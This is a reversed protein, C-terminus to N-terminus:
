LIIVISHSKLVNRKTPRFNTPSKRGGILLKRRFSEEISPGSLFMLLEETLITVRYYLHKLFVVFNFCFM